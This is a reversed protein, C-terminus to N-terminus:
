CGFESVMYFIGPGILQRRPRDKVLSLSKLKEASMLKLKQQKIVALQHKQKASKNHNNDRNPHEQL